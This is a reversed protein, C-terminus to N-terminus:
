QQQAPTENLTWQRFPLVARKRKSLLGGAATNLNFLRTLKNFDHTRTEAVGQSARMGAPQDTESIQQVGGVPKARFACANEAFQLPYRGRLLQFAASELAFNEGRKHGAGFCWVGCMAVWILM